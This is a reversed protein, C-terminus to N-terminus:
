LTMPVAMTLKELNKRAREFQPDLDLAKKFKQRANEILEDATDKQGRARMTRAKQLDMEGSYNSLSAGVSTTEAMGELMLREEDTLMAGLHTTMEFVLLKELEFFKDVGRSVSSAGLLTGKEVSFVKSELMLQDGMVMFTGTLTYRAAAIRGMEVADKEEVMGLNQFKQQELIDDLREWSLINFMGITELDTMIMSPIGFEWAKYEAAAKGVTINNFNLVMLVVRDERPVDRMVVAKKTQPGACATLM